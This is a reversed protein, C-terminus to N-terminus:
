TSTTLSWGVGPAEALEAHGDAFTPGGQCLEHSPDYRNGSRDFTEISTISAHAGALHASVESSIHTSVPLAWHEARHLVRVAATIGGITAVDLRLIDLGGAAVLADYVHPDTVEDGVGVAIRSGARLAQYAATSEPPFPDEVWAVIDSPWHHMETLAQDARQWTWSADVVVRTTMPLQGALANLTALTVAPDAARAIKVLPHGRQAGALAAHVVEDVDDPDNPYGAVLMVPVRDRVGGLLRYLPLQARQAQIDWLAIDILSLARLLMGSRGVGMTSRFCDQWRAEIAASDKGALLPRLMSDIIETIPAGRTQAYASGTLGDQTHVQVVAYLRETVTFPGLHLEQQLPKRVLTTTIETIRDAARM